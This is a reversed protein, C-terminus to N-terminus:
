NLKASKATKDVAAPAIKAYKATLFILLLMKYLM